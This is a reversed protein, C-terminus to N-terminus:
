LSNLLLRSKFTCLNGDGDTHYYNTEQTCAYSICNTLIIYIFITLLVKLKSFHGICITNANSQFKKMNILELDYKNTYYNEIKTTTDKANSSIQKNSSSSSIQHYFMENKDYLTM